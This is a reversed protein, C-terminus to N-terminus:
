GGMTAGSVILVALSTPGAIGQDAPTAPTAKM